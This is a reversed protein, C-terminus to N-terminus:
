KESFHGIIPVKFMEGQLAKVVLLSWLIVSGLGVLLVALSGFLYGFRPVFSCLWFVGRLM